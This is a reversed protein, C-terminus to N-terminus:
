TDNSSINSALTEGGQKDNGGYILASDPQMVSTAHSSPFMNYNLDDAM